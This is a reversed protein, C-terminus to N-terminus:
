AYVSFATGDDIYPIYVNWGNGDDIYCVYDALTVGDDIHAIGSQYELEIVMQTNPRNSYIGEYEDGYRPHKGWLIFYYTTNGRLTEIPIDIHIDFNDNTDSEDPEHEIIIDGTLIASPDNISNNSEDTDYFNFYEDIYNESTTLTYYTLNPTYIDYYDSGGVVPLDLRLNLSRGKFKPTTFKICSISYEGKWRNSAVSKQWNAGVAIQGDFWQKYKPDDENSEMHSYFRCARKSNIACKGTMSM